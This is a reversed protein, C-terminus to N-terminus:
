SVVAISNDTPKLTYPTKTDKWRCNLFISRDAQVRLAVAQHKEPGATNRFGMSQAM